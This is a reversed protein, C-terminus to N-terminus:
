FKYRNLYTKKLSLGKKGVFFLLTKDNEETWLTFNRLLTLKLPNELIIDKEIEGTLENINLYRIKNMFGAKNQSTYMLRLHNSHDFNINFSSETLGFQVSSLQHKLIHKEWMLKGENTFEFLLINGAIVNANRPKWTTPNNIAHEDYDVGAGILLRKELVLAVEKKEGIHIHTIHYNKWDEIVHPYKEQMENVLSTKFTSTLEHLHISEIKKEKFNFKTYNVAMLEDRKKNLNAVYVIDNGEISMVLNDRSSSNTAIDLFINEKTTLNYKVLVVRGSKNANLIFVDGSNNLAINYNIYGKDIPVKGSDIAIFDDNYIKTDAILSTQGYDFIYSIIKKNDPSFKLHFQYQLPTLYGSMLAGAITNDFKEKVAAKGFGVKYDSVTYEHIIKDELFQGNELSYFLLHLTAKNQSLNHEEILLGIKNTWHHYFNIFNKDAEFSIPVEWKRELKTTYKELVYESKGMKGKTKALSVFENKSVLITNHRGDPEIAAALSFPQNTHQSQASVSRNIGFLFCSVLLLNIFSKSSM